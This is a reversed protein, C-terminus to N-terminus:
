KKCNHYIFSDYFENILPKLTDGSVDVTKKLAKHFLPEKTQLLVDIADPYKRGYKQAIDTTQLLLFQQRETEKDLHYGQHEYWTKGTKIVSWLRLPIGHTNEARSYDEVSSRKIDFVDNIAHVIMMVQWGHKIASGCSSNSL